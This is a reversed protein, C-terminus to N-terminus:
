VRQTLLVRTSLNGSPADLPVDLTIIYGVGCTLEPWTAPVGGTGYLLQDGAVRPNEGVEAWVRRTVGDLTLETDPPIYTLILEAEWESTDVLEPALGDPNPYYRIRVQREATDGTSLVLTPLVAGWLPVDIAQVQVMYRRWVGVEEICESPIEPPLPPAPFAICDPDALPDTGLLDLTTRSSASENPDGLWDYRYQTTDATDGDFYPFLQTLSVMAADMLYSEGGLWPSGVMGAGVIEGGGYPGEGYPGEGYAFTETIEANTDRVVPAARVTGAPSFGSVILRTWIGALMPRDTGYTTSIALGAGDYFTIGPQMVQDRSPFVWISAIYTASEEVEAAGVYSIGSIFGSAATDSFFIVRASFAGAFGGTARYVAGAGGSVGDGAAFDLWGTVAEGLARSVSNNVAANWAFTTDSRAATSGDFYDGPNTNPNPQLIPTWGTFPSTYGGIEANARWEYVQGPTLGSVTKTTTPTTTSTVVGVSSTRYQINYETVGTVGGPPSLTILASQGNLSPAISIGPATAPLTTGSSVSSWPGAGYANLGRSRFYYTTGPNLGGITSTGGSAIVTASDFAPNDAYQIQWGTIPSGGDDNGSFRYRLSTTTNEDVGIPSPAAPPKPIRPLALYAIYQEDIGDYAVRMRINVGGHWGNADHPIDIIQSDDWRLQNQAYGSPLFPNAAHVVVWGYGDIGGWHEGYNNFYSGTSGVPGNYCIVHVRVRSSNGIIAERDAVVYFRTSPGTKDLPGITVM